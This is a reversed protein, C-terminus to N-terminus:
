LYLQIEQLAIALPFATTSLTSSHRTDKTDLNPPLIV